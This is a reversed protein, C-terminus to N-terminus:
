PVERVIVPEACRVFTLKAGAKTEYTAVGEQTGAFVWSFEFPIAPLAAGNNRTIRVPSRAAIQIVGNNKLLLGGDTKEASIFERDGLAVISPTCALYRHFYDKRPVIASSTGPGVVPDVVGSMLDIGKLQHTSKISDGYNPSAVVDFFDTAFPKAVVGKVARGIGKDALANIEAALKDVYNKSAGRLGDFIVAGRFAPDRWRALVVKDGVKVLPEVKTTRCALDSMNADATGAVTANGITFKLPSNKYSFEATTAAPHIEMDAEWPWNETIVGDHDSPTSAEAANDATLDQHIVLLGPTDRLWRSLVKITDDQLKTANHVVIIKYPTLDHNPILNIGPLADYQGLMERAAIIPPGNVAALSSVPAVGPQILLADPKANFPPLSQYIRACDYLHKQMFRLGNRIANKRPLTVDAKNGELDVNEGSNLSTERKPGELPADKFTHEIGKDITDSHPGVDLFSVNVSPTYLGQPKTKYDVFRWHATLRLHVQSMWALLMHSYLDNDSKHIFTTPMASTTQIWEEPLGEPAPADYVYARNPWLTKSFRAQIERLWDRGSNQLGWGLDFKWRELSTTADGDLPSLAKGWLSVQMNPHVFQNRLRLLDYIYNFGTISRDLSWHSFARSEYVNLRSIDGDIKSPDIKADRCFDRWSDAWNQGLGALLRLDCGDILRLGDSSQGTEFNHWLADFAHARQMIADGDPIGGWLVRAFITKPHERLIAAFPAPHQVYCIVGDFPPYEPFQEVFGSTWTMRRADSVLKVGPPAPLPQNISKALAASLTAKVYESKESALLTKLLSEAKPIPREAAISAAEMRVWRHPDQLGALVFPEVEAPARQNIQRLAEFRVMPYFNKTARQTLALDPLNKRDPAGTLAALREYSSGCELKLALHDPSGPQVLTELAAFAAEALAPHPDNSLERLAPLCETPPKVAIARIAETVIETEDDRLIALLEANEVAHLRLLARVISVRARGRLSSALTKLGPVDQAEARRSFEAAIPLESFRENKAARLAPLLGTVESKPALAIMASLAVNSDADKALEALRKRAADLDLKALGITAANRVDADDSTSAKNLTDFATTSNFCGLVRLAGMGAAKSFATQRKIPLSRDIDVKTDSELAKSFLEDMAAADKQGPLLGRCISQIFPEYSKTIPESLFPIVTSEMPTGLISAISRTNRDTQKESYDTNPLKRELFNDILLAASTRPNSPDATWLPAVFGSSPVARDSPSDPPAFKTSFIEDSPTLYPPRGILMYFSAFFESPDKGNPPLLTIPPGERPLNLTERIFSNMARCEREIDAPTEAKKRWQSQKDAFQVIAILETDTAQVCIMADFQMSASLHRFLIAHDIDYATTSFQGCSSDIREPSLIQVRPEVSLAALLFGKLVSQRFPEGIFKAANPMSVVAVRTRPAQAIAGQFSVSIVILLWLLATRANM